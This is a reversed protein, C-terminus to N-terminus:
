GKEEVEARSLERYFARCIQELKGLDSFLERRLRAAERDAAAFQEGTIEGAAFAENLEDRDEERVEGAPLSPCPPRVILDLWCDYFCGVGDEDFASGATIDCYWESIRGEPSFMATLVYNRDSPMLEVWSVGPGCVVAEGDPYEWRSERRVRDIRLLAATGRVEPFFDPRIMERQIYRKGTIDTWTDRDLRKRKMM